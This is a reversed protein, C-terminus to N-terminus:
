LSEKRRCLEVEFAAVPKPIKWKELVLPHIEGLIGARYGDIYVEACRGEIFSGHKCEKYIVCKGLERMLHELVAKIETFNADNSAVACAVKRVTVCRTEGSNDVEVCDGIEFIRQPYKRHTNNSLFELLNPILWKRCVTYELSAPNKIKVCEEEPICMKYFQKDESSLIFTLIEQFGMGILIERVM